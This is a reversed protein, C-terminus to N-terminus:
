KAGIVFYNTPSKFYTFIVTFKNKKKNQKAQSLKTWKKTKANYHYLAFNKEKLGAKKLDKKEYQFIWKINFKKKLNAKVKWGYALTKKTMGGPLFDKNGLYNLTLYGKKKDKKALKKLVFTFKQVGTKKNLYQKLQTFKKSASKASKLNFTHTYFGKSDFLTVRMKKVKKIKAEGLGAAKLDKQAQWKFKLKNQGNRNTLVNQIQYDEQRQLVPKGYTTKVRSLNRAAQWTDRYLYEVKAQLDNYDKDGVDLSIKAENGAVDIQDTSSYPDLSTRWVQTGKPGFIEGTANSTSGGTLTGCYLSNKFMSCTSIGKNNESDGFYAPSVKYWDEGNISRWGSGGATLYFNQQYNNDKFYDILEGGVNYSLIEMNAQGLATDKMIEEWSTGDKTRWIGNNYARIGYLYDDFVVFKQIDLVQNSESVVKEWSSGDSTRWIESPTNGIWYCYWGGGPCENIAHTTVYLYGNWVINANAAYWKVGGWGESPAIIQWIDSDLRYVVIQSQDATFLNNWGISTILYLNNNFKLFSRIYSTSRGYAGTKNIETGVIQWSDNNELSYVIVRSGSDSGTTTGIIYLKSDVIYAKFDVINAYITDATEWTGIFDEPLNINTWDSNEDCKSDLSCKFVFPIEYQGSGWFYLTNSVNALEGKLYHNKYKEGSSVEKTFVSTWDKGDETRYIELKKTYPLVNTGYENTFTMKEGKNVVAYFADGAEYFQSVYYNKADGFGDQNVQEWSWLDDSTSFARVTVGFVFMGLFLIGIGLLSKIIRQKAM